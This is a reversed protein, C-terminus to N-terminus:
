ISHLPKLYQMFKSRSIFEAGLSELYESHVQCDILKFKSNQVFSIFGIKSTNSVYSFMSEGCFIDENLQIGYLGGVLKKELWVEVSVAMGMQHLELYTEIMKKTIWTSSQHARKVSACAEIVEKFNRNVTVEFLAEKLLKKSSKSVKLKSPYLVFRPNPAWWLLPQEAEYWPFIGNQYAYQVREASLDGGVALLGDPNADALPPFEIEKNLWRM